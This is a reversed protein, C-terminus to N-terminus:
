AAKRAKVLRTKVNHEVQNTIVQLRFVHQLHAISWAKEPLIEQHCARILLLYALLTIGFAKELRGEGMSVQHEGVGLDTKLERKIQEVPWRRQYAEVGQRPTWEDLKTM